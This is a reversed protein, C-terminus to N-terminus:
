GRIGAKMDAPHRGIPEFGGFINELREFLACEVWLQDDVGARIDAVPRPERSRQKWSRFTVHDLRLRCASISEDSKFVVVRANM